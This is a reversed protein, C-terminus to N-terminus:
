AARGYIDGHVDGSCLCLHSSGLANCEVWSKFGYVLAHQARSVRGPVRANWVSEAALEERLKDGHALDKRKEELMKTLKATAKDAPQQEKALAKLRAVEDKLEKNSAM